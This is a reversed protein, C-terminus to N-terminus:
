STRLYSAYVYGTVCLGILGLLLTPWVWLIITRRGVRKGTFVAGIQCFYTFMSLGANIGTQTTAGTIGVLDFVTTYYYYIISSGSLQYHSHLGPLSQLM